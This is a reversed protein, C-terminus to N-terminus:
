LLAASDRASHLMRGVVIVKALVMAEVLAYGYRFYAIRYEASLLLRYTTFAGFLAALYVFLLLFTKTESVLRARLGTKKEGM